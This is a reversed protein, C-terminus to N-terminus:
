VARQSKACQLLIYDKKGVAVWVVTKLPCSRRILEFWKGGKGSAGAREFPSALLM